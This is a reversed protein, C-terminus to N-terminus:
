DDVVGGVTVEFHRRHSHNTWGDAAKADAVQWARRAAEILPRDGITNGVHVVILDPNM